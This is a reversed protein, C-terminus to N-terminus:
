GFRVRGSGVPARAFASEGLASAPTHRLLHAPLIAIPSAAKYFADPTRQHFWVVATLSDTVSVSDVNDLNSSLPSALATDKVLQFTYRVDEATVPKGDHWKAAPNIHFAVSLSDPAWRWSDALRPTFGEDGVTNLGPGIDALNDFVQDTVQKGLVSVTLAPFLVDADGASSIVITGGVGRDRSCAASLLVTALTISLARAAPTM